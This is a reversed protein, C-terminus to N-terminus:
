GILYKIAIILGNSVGFLILSYIVIGLLKFIIKVQDFSLKIISYVTSILVLFAFITYTEITGFRAVYLLALYLLISLYNFINTKRYQKIETITKLYNELENIEKIYHLITIKNIKSTYIYINNNKDKTINKIKNKNIIKSELRSKVIINQDNCELEFSKFDRITGKKSVIMVFVGTIIYMLFTILIILLGNGFEKIQLYLLPFFLLSFGYLSLIRYYGSKIYDNIKELDYKFIM